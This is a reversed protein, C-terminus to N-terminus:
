IRGPVPFLLLSSIYRNSFLRFFPWSIWGFAQLNIENNCGLNNLSFEDIIIGLIHIPRVSIEGGHAIRLPM